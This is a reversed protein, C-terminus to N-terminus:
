DFTDETIQDNSLPAYYILHNVQVKGELLVRKKEYAKKGWLFVPNPSDRKSCRL